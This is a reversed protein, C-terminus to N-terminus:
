LSPTTASTTIRASPVLLEAQRRREPDTDAVAAVSVRALKRLVPLHVSLGIEGCGLVGVQVAAPHSM